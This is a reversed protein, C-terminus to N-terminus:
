ARKSTFLGKMITQCIGERVMITLLQGKSASFLEKTAPTAAKDHKRIKIPVEKIM